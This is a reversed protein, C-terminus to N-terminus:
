VQMIVCILLRRGAVGLAAAAHQAGMSSRSSASKNLPSHSGVRNFSSPQMALHPRAQETLSTASQQETSKETTERCKDSRSRDPITM